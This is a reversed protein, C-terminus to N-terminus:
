DWGLISHLFYVMVLSFPYLFFALICTWLPYSSRFFALLGIVACVVLVAVVEGSYNWSLGKIYIIALLTSLGTINNMAVEGYIQV